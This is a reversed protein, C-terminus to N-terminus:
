YAFSSLFPLGHFPNLIILGILFSLITFALFSDLFRIEHCMTDGAFCTPLVLIRPIGDFISPKGIGTQFRRRKREADTGSTIVYFLDKKYECHSPVPLNNINVDPHSSTRHDKDSCSKELRFKRRIRGVRIVGM